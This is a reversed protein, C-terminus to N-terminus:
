EVPPAVAEDRRRKLSAWIIAGPIALALNTLGALISVTVAIETPLGLVAFGAALGAERVGWGGISLPLAAVLMVTPVVLAMDVFGVDLGLGRAYVTTVLMTACQAAVSIILGSLSVWPTKLLQRGTFSLSRVARLIRYKEFPLPLRDLMLMAVVACIGLGIVSIAVVAFISDESRFALIPQGIAILLLLGLLGVIRDLVVSIAANDTSMGARHAEWGRVVDGGVSTPLLQSFFHGVFVLGTVTSFPLREGCARIILFWRLANLVLALAVLCCGALLVPVFNADILALSKSVDVTAFLVMLLLATAAVRLLTSSQM